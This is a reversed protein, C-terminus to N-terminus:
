SLSNSSSKEADYQFTQYWLLCCDEQTGSQAKATEKVVKISINKGYSESATFNKTAVYRITKNTNKLYEKMYQWLM